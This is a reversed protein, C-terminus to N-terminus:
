APEKEALIPFAEVLQSRLAAAQDALPDAPDCAIRVLAAFGTATDLALCERLAQWRLHDSGEGAMEAMVPAADRRKMRGLLALLMEQRSERVNGSAQRLLAGDSIRYQRTPEPTESTRVLRLSVLRRDIRRVLLAERTTELSIASGPGIELDTKRFHVAGLTRQDLQVLQAGMHGAITLQHREGDVFSTADCDFEGPEQAVLLLMARGSRGLILTEVGGQSFHRLPVQGLPQDALAPLMHAVLSLALASAKELETLIAHLRLCDALSAGSGYRGLEERVQEFRALALWRDLAKAHDAMALRQPAPNGRLARVDPDIRM